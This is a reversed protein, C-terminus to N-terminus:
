TGISFKRPLKASKSALKLMDRIEKDKALDLPTKGDMNTDDVRINKELLMRIISLNGKQVAYHLATSGNRDEAELQIKPHDLLRKVIAEEQQIIAVM